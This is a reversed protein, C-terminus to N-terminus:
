FVRVLYLFDLDSAFLGHRLLKDIPQQHQLHQMDFMWFLHHRRIDRILPNHLDIGLMQLIERIQGFQIARFIINPELLEAFQGVDLVYVDGM